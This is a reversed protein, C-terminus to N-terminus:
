IPILLMILLQNHIWPLASLFGVDILTVFPKMNMNILCMSQCTNHWPWRIKRIEVQFVSYFNTLGAKTEQLVQFHNRPTLLEYQLFIVMSQTQTSMSWRTKLANISASFREWFLLQGWKQLEILFILVLVWLNYCLTAQCMCFNRWMQYLWRTMGQISRIGKNWNIFWIPIQKLTKKTNKNYM